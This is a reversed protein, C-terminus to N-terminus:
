PNTEFLTQRRVRESSRGRGEVALGYAIKVLASSLANPNGDEIVGVKPVPIRNESCVARVCEQISPPYGELGVWQIKYIVQLIAPSAAWHPLVVGVAALLSLSLGLLLPDLVIILVMFLAFLIGFLASLALYMRAM